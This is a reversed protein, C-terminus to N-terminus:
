FRERTLAGRAPQLTDSHPTRCRPPLTRDASRPTLLKAESLVIAHGIFAECWSAPAPDLVHADAMERRLGLVVVDARNHFQCSEEASRRVRRGILIETTELQVQGLVVRARRNDVGGDRRQPEKEGHRETPGVRSPM